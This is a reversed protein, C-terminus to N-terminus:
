EKKKLSDMLQQGFSSVSGKEAETNSKQIYQEYEKQAEAERVKNVSLSIKEEDRDIFAIM